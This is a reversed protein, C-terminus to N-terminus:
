DSTLAEGWKLELTLGLRAFQTGAGFGIWWFPGLALGVTWLDLPLSYLSDLSSHYLPVTTSIITYLTAHLTYLTCHITYVYDVGTADGM